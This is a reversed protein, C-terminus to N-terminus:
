GGASVPLGFVAQIKAASGNVVSQFRAPAVRSAAAARVAQVAATAASRQAPGLWPAGDLASRLQGASRNVTDGILTTGESGNLAQSYELPLVQLATVLDRGGNRGDAIKDALSPATARGTAIGALLGVVLTAVAILITSRKRKGAGAYVAM